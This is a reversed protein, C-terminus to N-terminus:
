QGSRSFKCKNKCDKCSVYEITCQPRDPHFGETSANGGAGGEYSQTSIDNYGKQGRWLSRVHLWTVKADYDSWSAESDIISCIEELTYGVSKLFGAMWLRSYHDPHESHLVDFLERRKEPSRVKSLETDVSYTNSDGAKYNTNTCIGCLGQTM